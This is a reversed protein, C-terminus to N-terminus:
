ITLEVGMTVALSNSECYNLSYASAVVILMKVLTVCLRSCIWFRISSKLMMLLEPLLDPPPMLLM